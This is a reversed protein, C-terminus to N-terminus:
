AVGQPTPADPHLLGQTKLAQWFANPLPMDMWAINQTLQSANRAGALCSVVAPHALPFQLAAAQVPVDFAECVSTLRAVKEVVEAPADAYNFKKSGALIGSNFPGGAIIAHGAAECRSLLPELSEQELLTYRGALLSCDLATEQMADVIIQWENVGLGIARTQGHARLEELARFGGGQTLQSWYHGHQAGHTYSGIDHVFLIDIYTLGLRQLSDEFSRMIGSYTYDYHPRFPLPEAWGDEGPKVSADAKMVRGVKSSLIFQDRPKERLVAGVRHESLTYGYFPATDFYRLGMEWATQLTHTAEENSSARYLGGMQACGLGLQSLAFTKNLMMKATAATM